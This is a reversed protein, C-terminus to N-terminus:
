RSARPHLRGRRAKRAPRGPAPKRLPWGPAWDPLDGQEVGNVIEAVQACWDPDDHAPVDLWFGVFPGEVRRFFAVPFDVELITLSHRWGPAAHLHKLLERYGANSAVLPAAM